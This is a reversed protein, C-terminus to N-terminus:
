NAKTLEGSIILKSIDFGMNKLKSVLTDYINQELNPTRSLIWLYVQKPESVVVYQYNDDLDIIWYNFWGFNMWRLWSPVFNIKLKANTLDEARGIGQVEKQSGDARTCKNIIILGEKEGQSYQAQTKVCDEQRKNPFRAIEHWTGMYRDLDVKPVTFLAEPAAQSGINLLFSFSCLVCLTKFNM